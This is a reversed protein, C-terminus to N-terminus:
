IYTRCNVDVVIGLVNQIKNPIDESLKKTDKLGIPKGDDDVGIYLKGGNANAFGCIWKLYEDRWGPKYEIDQREIM